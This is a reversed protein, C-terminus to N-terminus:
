PRGRGDDPRPLPADLHGGAPSAHPAPDGRARAVVEELSFPKGVYDDAGLTLGRVRDAAEDKATLFLVPIPHPGAAIRRYVEFGDLDPLMVDLMILDPRFREAARLAARGDAASEVEFGEYRLVTTLLQVIAEEDDVVLIRAAEDAAPAPATM